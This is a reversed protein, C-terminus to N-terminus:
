RRREESISDANLKGGGNIQALALKVSLTLPVALLVGTMGLLGQWVLLSVIVASTSLNLKRGILYPDLLCGVILNILLYALLVLAGAGIGNFVFAQIVPPIAAIVSGIIPIFNLLFALVGWIFAFKVNLLLLAAWVALGSLLSILTKLGLYQTVCAIGQRIAEMGTPSDRLLSRSKAILSPMELLMFIVMLFVVLIASLIESIRSVARTIMGLIQSPDLLTMIQEPTLTLGVRALPELGAILHNALVGRMQTIMMALEPLTNMIKALTLLLAMLLGGSLLAIAALRPVGLRSMMVILPELVIVLFLALLLLVIVPAALYIGIVVIVLCALLLLGKLVTDRTHETINM